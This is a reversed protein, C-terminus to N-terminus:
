KGGLKKLLMIPIRLNFYSLNIVIKFPLSKKKIYKNKRWNPFDKKIIDKFEKIYPKSEKFNVIQLPASYLLHEIYLYELEEKYENYLNYDEFRKKLNNLAKIIDKIKPNFKDQHIISGKHVIYKYYTENIYAINKTKIIFSPILELDEYHIGETFLFPEKFLERKFLKGCAMPNAMIYDRYDSSLNYTPKLVRTTKDNIELAGAVLIDLNDEKAKNYMELLMNKSVYDDSDVFSIYEGTSFNLGYNRASSLGGNEKKLYIINKYKEQVKKIIEESNDPSGDNVVIIEIDKLTQNVLSDLCKAIYMEVNYVPVIVSVKIM